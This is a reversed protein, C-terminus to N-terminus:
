RTSNVDEIEVLTEIRGGSLADVLQQTWATSIPNDSALLADDVVHLVKDLPIHMDLAAWRRTMRRSVADAVAPGYTEAILEVLAGQPVLRVLRSAAKLVEAEPMVPTGDATRGLDEPLPLPTPTPDHMRDTM